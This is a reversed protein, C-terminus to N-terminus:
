IKTQTKIEIAYGDCQALDWVPDISVSNLDLESFMNCPQDEATSKEILFLLFLRAIAQAKTLLQMQQEYGLRKDRKNVVMFLLFDQSKATFLNSGAIDHSPIIGLLLANDTEAVDKLVSALHSDDIFLFNKNIGNISETAQNLFQQLQDITIM